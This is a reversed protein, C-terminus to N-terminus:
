GHSQVQSQHEKGGGVSAADRSPHSKSSLRAGLQGSVSCDPEADVAKGADEEWVWQWWLGSWGVWGGCHCQMTVWRSTYLISDEDWVCNECDRFLATVVVCVLIFVYNHRKTGSGCIGSAQEVPSSGLQIKKYLKAYKTEVMWGVYNLQDQKM